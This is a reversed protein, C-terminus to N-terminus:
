SAERLGFRALDTGARVRDFAGATETVAVDGGILGAGSAVVDQVAGRFGSRRVDGRVLEARLGEGARIVLQNEPALSTM